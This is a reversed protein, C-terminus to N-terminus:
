WRGTLVSPPCLGLSLCGGREKSFIYFTFVPTSHTFWKFTAHMADPSLSVAAPKREAKMQLSFM